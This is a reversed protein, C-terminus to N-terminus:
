KKVITYLHSVFRQTFTKTHYLNENKGSKTKQNPWIFQQPCSINVSVMHVCSSSHEIM